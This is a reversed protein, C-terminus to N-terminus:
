TIRIQIRIGSGSGLEFFPLSMGYFISINWMKAQDAFKHPDPDLKYMKIRIRIRIKIQHLHPDLNGFNHADERIRIRIWLM